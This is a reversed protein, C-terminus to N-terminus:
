TCAEARPVARGCNPGAEVNDVAGTIEELTRGLGRLLSRVFAFPLMEPNTVGAAVEKVIPRCSTMFTGFQKTKTVRVGSVPSPIFVNGQLAMGEEGGRLSFGGVERKGVVVLVWM